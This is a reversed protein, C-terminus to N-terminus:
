NRSHGCLMQRRPKTLEVRYFNIREGGDEMDVVDIYECQWPIPEFYLTYYLDMGVSGFIYKKPAIPINEVRILKYERSDNIQRSDRERPRLHCCDQINIWCRKNGRLRSVYHFDIRTYEANFEISMIKHYDDHSSQMYAIYIRVSKRLIRNLELEKNDKKYSVMPKFKEMYCFYFLM